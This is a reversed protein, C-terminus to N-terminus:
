SRKQKEKILSEITVRLRDVRWHLAYYEDAERNYANFDYVSKAASLVGGAAIIVGAPTLPTLAMSGITQAISLLLWAASPESRRHRQKMLWCNASAVSLRFHLERLNSEGLTRLDGLQAIEHLLAEIAGVREDM